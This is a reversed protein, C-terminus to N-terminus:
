NNSSSGNNLNDKQATAWVGVGNLLDKIGTGMSNLGTYLIGMLIAAGASYELLTYGRRNNKRNRKQM